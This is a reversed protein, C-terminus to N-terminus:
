TKWHMRCPIKERFKSPLVLIIISLIVKIATLVLIFIVPLASVFVSSTNFM